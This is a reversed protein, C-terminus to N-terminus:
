KSNHLAQIRENILSIPHLVEIHIGEKELAQQIHLACGINTTVWKEPKETKIFEVIPDVLKNAIDPHRLFNTGAAGCCGLGTPVSIASVGPTKQILETLSAAKRVGNRLTCPTHVVIRESVTNLSIHSLLLQEAIFDEITRLPIHPTDIKLPYNKYEQLTSHCGSALSIIVDAQSDSWQTVQNSACTKAQDLQGAHISLAGCCFSPDSKKVEWGLYELVSQADQITKQDLVQSVCPQLLLVTGKKAIVNKVKSKEKTKKRTPVYSALTLFAGYHFRKILTPLLPIAQYLKVATKLHKRLHPQELTAILIKEFRSPEHLPSMWAKATTFLEEYKVGAPCVAECARCSLCTDVHYILKETIPVQQRVAGQMLAIRGRPSENENQAVTYTPCHPLCLGCKVCQQALANIKAPVEAPTM